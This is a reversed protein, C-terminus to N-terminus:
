DQSHFTEVTQIGSTKAHIEQQLGPTGCQILDTQKTHLLVQKIRLIFHREQKLGQHRARIEQQAITNLMM